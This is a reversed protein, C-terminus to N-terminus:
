VGQCMATPYRAVRFNVLPANWSGTQRGGPVHGSWDICPRKATSIRRVFRYDGVQGDNPLQEAIRHWTREQRLPPSIEFPTAVRAPKPRWGSEPLRARLSTRWATWTRMQAFKDRNKQERSSRRVSPGALLSQRLPECPAFLREVSGFGCRIRGHQSAGM